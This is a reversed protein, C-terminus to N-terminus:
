APRDLSLRFSIEYVFLQLGPVALVAMRLRDSAEGAILIGRVSQNNRCLKAKVWGMYGLIQGIAQRDPVNRKTEVVVFNGDEDTCLFDLVGVRPDTTGYERGGDVFKLSPFVTGWNRHLYDQLHMELLATGGFDGEAEDGDTLMDADAQPVLPTAPDTLWQLLRVYSVTDLDTRPDSLFRAREPESLLRYRKGRMAPDDTVLIPNKLYRRGPYSNRSPDNICMSGVHASVTGKNVTGDLAVVEQVIDGRFVWEFGRRHLRETAQQMLEWVTM